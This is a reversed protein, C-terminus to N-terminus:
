ALSALRDGQPQLRHPDGPRELRHGVANPRNEDVLQLETDVGSRRMREVLYRAVEIEHGTASPINVLDILASRVAEATVHQVAKAFDPHNM